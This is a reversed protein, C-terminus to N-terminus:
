LRLNLVAIGVRVRGVATRDVRLVRQPVDLRLRLLLLEVVGVVVLVVGVLGGAVAVVLVLLLRLLM